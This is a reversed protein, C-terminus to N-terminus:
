IALMSFNFLPCHTEWSLFESGLSKGINDDSRIRFRVRPRLVNSFKGSTTKVLESVATARM